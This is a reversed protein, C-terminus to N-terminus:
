EGERRLRRASHRASGDHRGRAHVDRCRGGHDARRYQGRRVAHVPPIKGPGAERQPIGLRLSLQSLAARIERHRLEGGCAAGFARDFRLAAVAMARRRGPVLVRRREAPGSRAPIQRARRHIRNGADGSSRLRLARVRHPDDRGHHADRRYRRPRPRGPRAAPPGQTEAAKQQSFRGHREVFSPTHGTPLLAAAWRCGM